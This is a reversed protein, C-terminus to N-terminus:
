TNEGQGMSGIVESYGEMEVVQPLTEDETETVIEYEPFLFSHDPVM